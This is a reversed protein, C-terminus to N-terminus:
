NSDGVRAQAVFWALPTMHTIHCLLSPIMSPECTFLAAIMTADDCVLLCDVHTQREVLACFHAAFRPMLCLQRAFAPPARAAIIACQHDTLSKPDDPLWTPTSPRRRRETALFRQHQTPDRIMDFIANVHPPHARNLACTMDDTDLSPHVFNIVDSPLCRRLAIHQSLPTDVVLTALHRPACRLLTDLHRFTM